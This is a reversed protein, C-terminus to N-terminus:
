HSLRGEFLFQVVAERQLYFGNPMHVITIAIIYLVCKAMEYMFLAANLAFRIPFPILPPLLHLLYLLSNGADFLLPMICAKLGHNNTYSLIWWYIFEKCFRSHQSCNLEVFCCPLQITYVSFAKLSMPPRSGSMVM